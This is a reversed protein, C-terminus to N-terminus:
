CQRQFCGYIGTTTHSTLRPPIKRCHVKSAERREEVRSSTKRSWQESQKGDSSQKWGFVNEIEEFVAGQNIRMHGAAMAALKLLLQM